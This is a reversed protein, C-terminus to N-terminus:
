LITGDGVAEQDQNKPLALKLQNEYLAFGQTVIFELFGDPLYLADDDRGKFTKEIWYKPLIAQLKLLEQM